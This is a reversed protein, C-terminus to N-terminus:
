LFVDILTASNGQTCLFGSPVLANVTRKCAIYYKICSKVFCVHLGVIKVVIYLTLGSIGLYGFDGAATWADRSFIQSFYLWQRSLCVQIKMTRMYFLVWIDQRPKFVKIHGWISEWLCVCIYCSFNSFITIFPPIARKHAIEEKTM